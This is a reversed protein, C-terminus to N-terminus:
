KNPWKPEPKNLLEELNELDYRLVAVQVKSKNFPRASRVVSEAARKLAHFALDFSALSLAAKELEIFEAPPKLLDNQNTM